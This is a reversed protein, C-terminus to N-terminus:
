DKLGTGMNDDLSEGILHQSIVSCNESGWQLESILTEVAKKDMNLTLNAYLEELRKSLKFIDNAIVEFHSATIQDKKM